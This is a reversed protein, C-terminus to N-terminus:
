KKTPNGQEVSFVFPLREEFDDTLLAILDSSTVLGLLIGNADTVPVCDIKNELMMKAVDSIRSEPRCTYPLNTMGDSVRLRPVKLGDPTPVSYALVDRDSLIGVLETGKLVPLHRIKREVMIEWAADLDDDPGVCVVSRTMTTGVKM